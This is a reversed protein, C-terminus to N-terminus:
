EKETDADLHGKVALRPDTGVVTVYVTGNRVMAAIHADTVDKGEIRKLFEHMVNGLVHWRGGHEGSIVWADNTEDFGNASSGGVQKIGGLRGDDAREFEDAPNGATLPGFTLAEHPDDVHAPQPNRRSKREEEKIRAEAWQVVRGRTEAPLRELVELVISMAELEIQSNSVAPNTTMRVMRENAEQRNM